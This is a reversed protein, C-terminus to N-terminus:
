GTVRLSGDETVRYAGTDTIRIGLRDTIGYDVTLTTEIWVEPVVGSLEILADGVITVAEGAAKEPLTRLSSEDIFGAISGVGLVLGETLAGGVPALSILPDGGAAGYLRFQMRVDTATTFDIPDGADDVIDTWAWALPANRRAVLDRRLTQAM